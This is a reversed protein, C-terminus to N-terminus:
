ATGGGMMLLEFSYICCRTSTLLKSSDAAITSYNSSLELEEVIAARNVLVRHQIYLKSGRIIPPTVAQFM